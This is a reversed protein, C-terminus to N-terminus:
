QSDLQVYLKDVEDNTNDAIPAYCQILCIDFSRGKLRVVMVRESTCWFGSACKATEEDLFIGVGHKHETGGSYIFTTGESALKGSQTWGVKCVDLINIKMRKVKMMLNDVKVSQYMIRVCEM